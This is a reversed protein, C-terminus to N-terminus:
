KLQNLADALALVAKTFTHAVPVIITPIQVAEILLGVTDNIM